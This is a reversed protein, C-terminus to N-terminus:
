TPQQRRLSQTLEDNSFLVGNAPEPGKLYAQVCINVLDSAIEVLISHQESEYPALPTTEEHPLVEGHYSAWSSPSESSLGCDPAASHSCTHKM